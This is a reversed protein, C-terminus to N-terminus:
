KEGVQFPESIIIRPIRSFSRNDPQQGDPFCAAALSFRCFGLKM